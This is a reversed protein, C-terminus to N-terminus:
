FNEGLNTLPIKTKNKFNYQEQDKKKKKKINKQCPIMPTYSYEQCM